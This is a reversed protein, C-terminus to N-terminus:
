IFYINFNKNYITYIYISLYYNTEEITKVTSPINLSETFKCGYFASDGITEVKNLDLIGHMSSCGFFANESIKKYKDPIILLSLFLSKCDYFMKPPISVLNSPLNSIQVLKACSYFAGTGINMNNEPEEEEELFELKEFNCNKFAYHGIKECGIFINLTKDLGYCGFFAYDEIITHLTLFYLSGQLKGCLGFCYTGFYILRTSFEVGTLEKCSLFAFEEIRKM